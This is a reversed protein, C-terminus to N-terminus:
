GKTSVHAVKTNKKRFLPDNPDRNGGGAEVETRIYEAVEAQTLEDPVEVTVKFTMRKM